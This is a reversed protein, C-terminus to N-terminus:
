DCSGITQLAYFDYLHVVLELFGSILDHDFYNEALIQAIAM